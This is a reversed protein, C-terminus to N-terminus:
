ISPTKNKFYNYIDNIKNKNLPYTYYHVNCIGGDIGVTDGICVNTYTKDTINFNDTYFIKGNIFIDITGDIYNLIINNWKQAKFTDNFVYVDKSKNNNKLSIRLTEEMNNYSIVPNNRFNLLTTYKSYAVGTSPPHPNIYLWGSIAYNFTNKKYPINGINKKISTYVPKTVLTKGKPLYYLYPYFCLVYLYYLVYYVLLILLIVVINNFIFLLSNKIGYRYMLACVIMVILIILWSHNIFNYIHKIIDYFFYYIGNLMTFKNGFIIIQIITCFLIFLALIGLLKLGFVYTHANVNQFKTLKKNSFLYCMYLVYFVVLSVLNITIEYHKYFDNFYRVLVMIIVAYSLVIIVLKDTELM